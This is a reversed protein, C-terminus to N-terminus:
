AVQKKSKAVEISDKDYISMVDGVLCRIEQRAAVHTVSLKALSGKDLLTLGSIFLERFVTRERFGGILKFGLRKSLSSLIGEIRTRNKSTMNQLRNRVVFWSFAQKRQAARQLRQEWVMEAYLSPRLLNNSVDELKILLDLDIPSDNLPTILLDCQCHAYRSIESDSGPTDIVFFPDGCESLKEDMQEKLAAYPSQWSLRFHEPCPLVIKEKDQFIKRNELYRSLTGQRGDLDLSTVTHGSYLLSVITHMALTSKGTGGKENGFVIVFPKV